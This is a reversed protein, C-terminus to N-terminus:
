MATMNQEQDVLWGGLGQLTKDVQLTNKKMHQSELNVTQNGVQWTLTTLNYWLQIGGGREEERREGRPRPTKCNLKALERKFTM